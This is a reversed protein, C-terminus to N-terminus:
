LLKTTLALEVKSFLVEKIKDEAKGSIKLLQVSLDM